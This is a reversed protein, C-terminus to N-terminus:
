IKHEYTPVTVKPVRWIAGRMMESVFTTGPVEQSTRPHFSPFTLTWKDAIKDIFTKWRTMCKEPRSFSRKLAFLHWFLKARLTRRCNATQLKRSTPPIASTRCTRPHHPIPHSIHRFEGPCRRAHSCHPRPRGICRRTEPTCSSKWRADRRSASFSRCRIEWVCGTRLGLNRQMSRWCEWFRQRNQLKSFKTKIM